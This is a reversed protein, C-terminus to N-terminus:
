SYLTHMGRRDCSANHLDDCLATIATNKAVKENEAEAEAMDFSRTSTTPAEIAPGVVAYQSTRIVLAIAKM